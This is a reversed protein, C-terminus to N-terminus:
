SGNCLPPPDFPPRRTFSFGSDMARALLWWGHRVIPIQPAIRTAPIM